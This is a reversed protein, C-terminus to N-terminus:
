RRVPVYCRVCCESDHRLFIGPTQPCLGWAFSLWFFFSGPPAPPCHGGGSTWNSKRQHHYCDREAPSIALCSRLLRNVHSKSTIERVALSTGHAPKLQGGPLTLAQPPVQPFGVVDAVIAADEGDELKVVAAGGSVDGAHEAHAALRDVVPHRGERTVCVGVGQRLASAGAAGPEEIFVGEIPQPRQEVAGGLVDAERVHTPRDWQEALGQGEGGAGLGGTVGDAALQRLPVEHPLPRTVDEGRVRLALFFRRIM